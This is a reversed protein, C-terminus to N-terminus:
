DWPKERGERLRQINDKHRWVIGVALALLVWVREPDIWQGALPLLATATLASLSSTRKWMFVGIWALLAAVLVFPSLALVGGAATAVGKGGRFDLYPSWCHAAFCVLATAEALEISGLLVQAGLVPLLGKTVDGLLTLLGIDRGVVRTVNTAGINHSGEQTVDTDAALTALILGTPIGALLWSLLLWVAATLM